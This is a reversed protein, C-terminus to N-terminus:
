NSKSINLDFCIKYSEFIWKWFNYLIQVSIMWLLVGVFNVKILLLVVLGISSIVSCIILSRVFKQNNSLSIISTSRQVIQYVYIYLLLASLESFPLINLNSGIINLITDGFTILVISLISYIITFSSFTKSYIKKSSKINKTIISNGLKIYYVSFLISALASITTILQYSLTFESITKLNLFLPLLFIIFQTQLFQSILMGGMGKSKENIFKFETIFEKDFNRKSLKMVESIETYLNSLKRKYQIKLFIVTLLSSVSLGLIGFNMVLLIVKSIMILISNIITIEQLEYIKNLGKMIAADKMSSITVLISIAFVIWSTISKLYSIDSSDKWIIYLIYLTLVCLIILSLRILKNYVKQASIIIMSM